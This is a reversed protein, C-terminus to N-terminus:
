LSNLAGKLFYYCYVDRFCLRLKAIILDFEHFGVKRRDFSLYTNRQLNFNTHFLFRIGDNKVSVCIIYMNCLYRM